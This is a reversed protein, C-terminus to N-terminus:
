AMLGISLMSRNGSRALRHVEGVFSLKFAVDSLQNSDVDGSLMRLHISQDVLFGDIYLLQMGDFLDALRKLLEALPQFLRGSSTLSTGSSKFARACRKFIRCAFPRRGSSFEQRWEDAPYSLLPEKNATQDNTAYQQCETLMNTHTIFLSQRGRHIRVQNFRGLLCHRPPAGIADAGPYVLRKSELKGLIASQFRECAEHRSILSLM